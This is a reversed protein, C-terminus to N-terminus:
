SLVVTSLHKYYQLNRWALPASPNSLNTSSRERLESSSQQRSPLRYSSLTSTAAAPATAAPSTPRHSRSHVNQPRHAAVYLSPAPGSDDGSSDTDIRSLQPRRSLASLPQTSALNASFSGPARRLGTSTPQSTSPPFLHAHDQRHNKGISSSVATGQGNHSAGQQQPPPPPAVM